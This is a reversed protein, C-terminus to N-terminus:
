HAHALLPQSARIKIPQESLHQMVNVATGTKGTVDLLLCLYHPGGGGGGGIEEGGEWTSVQYKNFKRWTKIVHPLDRDGESDPPQPM